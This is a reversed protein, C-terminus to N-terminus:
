IGSVQDTGSINAALRSNDSISNIVGSGSCKAQHFKARVHIEVVKLIRNLELTM